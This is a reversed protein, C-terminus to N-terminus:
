LVRRLVAGRRLLEGSGAPRVGTGGAAFEGVVALTEVAPVMGGRRGRASRRRDGPCGESRPGPRDSPVARRDRPRRERHLDGGGDIFEIDGSGFGEAFRDRVVQMVDARDHCDWEGPEFWGWEVDPHLMAEVADFDGRRWAGFGERALGVTRESMDDEENPEP